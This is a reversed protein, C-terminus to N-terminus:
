PVLKYYAGKQTMLEKHTGKGIVTGQSMVAIINSNQITSLHHAIVICTRGERAKDLAVQVMACSIVALMALFVNETNEPNKNQVTKKVMGWTMEPSNRM